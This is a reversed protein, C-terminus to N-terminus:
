TPTNTAETWERGSPYNLLETKYKKSLNENYQSKLKVKKPPPNIILVNTKWFCLFKQLAIEEGWWVLGVSAEFSLCLSACSQWLEPSLHKLVPLSTSVAQLFLPLSVRSCFTHVSISGRPAPLLPLYQQTISGLDRHQLHTASLLVM